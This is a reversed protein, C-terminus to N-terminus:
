RSCGPGGAGFNIVARPSTVARANDQGALRVQRRQRFQAARDHPHGWMTM